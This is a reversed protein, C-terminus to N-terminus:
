VEGYLSGDPQQYVDMIGYTIGYLSLTVKCVPVGDDQSMAAANVVIDSDMGYAVNHAYEIATHINLDTM